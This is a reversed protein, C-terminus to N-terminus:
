SLLSSLPGPRKPPQSSNLTAYNGAKAGVLSLYDDMFLARQTEAPFAHFCMTYGKSLAHAQATVRSADRKWFIQTQPSATTVM